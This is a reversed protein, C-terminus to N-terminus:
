RYCLSFFFLFFIWTLVICYTYVDPLCYCSHEKLSWKGLGNLEKVSDEDDSLEGRFRFLEWNLYDRKFHRYNCIASTTKFSKTPLIVKAIANFNITVSNENQEREWVHVTLVNPFTVTPPLFPLECLVFNQVVKPLPEQCLNEWKFCCRM